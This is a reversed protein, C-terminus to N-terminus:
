NRGEKQRLVNQLIGRREQQKDWKYVTPLNKAKLWKVKKEGAQLYQDM